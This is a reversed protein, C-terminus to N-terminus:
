APMTVTATHTQCELEVAHKLRSLSVHLNPADAHSVSHMTAHVFLYIVAHICSQMSLHIFSDTVAHVISLILPCTVTMCTNDVLHGPWWRGEEVKPVFYSRCFKNYFHCAINQRLIAIPHGMAWCHHWHLSQIWVNLTTCRCLRTLLLASEPWRLWTGVGNSPAHMECSAANSEIHHLM